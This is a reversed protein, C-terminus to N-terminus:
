FQEFVSPLRIGATQSVGQTASQGARSHGFSASFLLEILHCFPEPL